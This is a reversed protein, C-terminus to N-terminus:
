PKTDDSWTVQTKPKPDSDSSQYTPKSIDPRYWQHHPDKGDLYGKGYLIIHPGDPNIIDSTHLDIPYASSFAFHGKDPLFKHVRTCLAKFCGHVVYIYLEAMRSYVYM